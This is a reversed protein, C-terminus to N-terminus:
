NKRTNDRPILLRELWVVLISFLYYPAMRGLRLNSTRDAQNTWNIPIVEYRYGRSIAKLPMEVTINFSNSVLPQIGDIVHRRYCKFAGTIDNLPLLFMLQICSNVLRNALYKRFPYGHLRSANSFRSGFVCEAGEDLLALYRVLDAPDDSQDAMTICVSDGSYLDLGQRISRGFGTRTTNMIGRIRPDRAEMNAMFEATGDNSADDIVIIEFDSFGAAELANTIGEITRSLNAAEKYAPIVISHVASDAPILSIRLM